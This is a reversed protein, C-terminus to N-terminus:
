NNSLRRSVDWVLKFQSSLMDVFEKSEIIFGFSENKSSICAAKKGYIWYGMTFSVDKPAIRIERLFEEGFGLYPHLAISLKQSEPWIAETYINRRIREKNHEIFFDRGLIDVMAKIPWYAKTEIDRYLLMDNLINELGSKGEFLHFRPAGLTEQKVTNEYLLSIDTQAEKLSSIKQSLLQQAKEKTAATFVKVGNKQSEIVLGLETLRRLLGYLSPRSLYNRKALEGVTQTGYELLSIFLQAEDDKIDLQELFNHNM